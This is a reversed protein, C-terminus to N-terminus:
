TEALKIASCVANRNKVTKNLVIERYAAMVSAALVLDGDTVSQKAHRMRWEIDELRDSSPNPFTMDTGVKVYTGNAILKSEM